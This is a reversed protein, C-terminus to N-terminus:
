EKRMNGNEDLGCARFFTDYRFNSNDRKCERAIGDVLSEVAQTVANRTVGKRMGKIQEVQWNIQEAFARYHKRSMM